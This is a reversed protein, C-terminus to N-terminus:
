MLGRGIKNLKGDTKYEKSLKDLIGNIFISSKPTSYEKSIELYENITVKVPISPFELFECIAMKLLVTDIEAIRDKDWNPTKGQMEESLKADKLYTKRFLNVAFEKDDISKFLKPLKDEPTATQKLKQLMKVVATNVLPLDDLWTLKKDEFYDYIKDNPAIVKKFIALIFDKDEKFSNDRTEMYDAFADSEKIENWLIAVYEDDFKWHNLKRDDIIQELQTNQELIEFVANQVFKRNPDKDEKTALHKQQSRELFTEAHAKIETLLSLQLVFLDYMEEMSKLLFKEESALNDNESQNFAYLSQMVKVRIHRRTLM